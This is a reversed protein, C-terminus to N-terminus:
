YRDHTILTRWFVLPCFLVGVALYLKNVSRVKWLSMELLM